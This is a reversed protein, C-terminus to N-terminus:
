CGSTGTAAASGALRAPALELAPRRVAPRPAPSRTGPASVVSAPPQALAPADPGTPASLEAGVWTCGLTPGDTARLTTSRARGASQLRGSSLRRSPRPRILSLMKM